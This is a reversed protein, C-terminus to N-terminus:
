EEVDENTWIAEKSRKGARTTKVDALHRFPLWAAGDNECVIVQGDRSKCWEGLAEFDIGQSGHTYHKGAHQYPPDVFWTAPGVPCEEYSCNHIKWHRISEVQSAIESGTVGSPGLTFEM